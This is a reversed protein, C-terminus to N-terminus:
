RVSRIAAKWADRIEREAARRKEDIAPRLYPQAPMQVVNAFIEGGGIEFRLADAVKPEITGGFEQIAAYELNTGISISASEASKETTEMNLSRRLSGSRYPARRKAENLILFAGSRAAAELKNGRTEASVKELKRKLEKSGRLRM